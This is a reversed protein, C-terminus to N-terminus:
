GVERGLVRQALETAIRESQSGLDFRISSVEKEIKERGEEVIRAAVERAEGLIEAELRATEGRLIEREEAAVRNIKELEQEYRRLLKGAEEQMRRAEAKAGDTRIERQEFIRLVPDFLLPKLVLILGMFLVMQVLFTRDFDFKVGGASSMGGLLADLISGVQATSASLGSSLM